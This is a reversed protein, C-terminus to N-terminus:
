FPLDEEDSAGDDFVYEEDQGDANDAAALQAGFPLSGDGFPMEGKVETMVTKEEVEKRLKEIVNEKQPKENEKQPADIEGIEKFTTTEGTWELM